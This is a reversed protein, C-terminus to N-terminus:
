NTHERQVYNVNTSNKKKQENENYKVRLYFLIYRKLKVYINELM